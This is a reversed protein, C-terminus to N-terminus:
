GFVKIQKGGNLCDGLQFEVNNNGDEFGFEITSDRSFPRGLGSFAFWNNHERYGKIGNLTAHASIRGMTNFVGLIVYFPNGYSKPRHYCIM